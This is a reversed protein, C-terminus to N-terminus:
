NALIRQQFNEDFKMEMDQLLHLLRSKAEDYQKKDIKEFCDSVDTTLDSEVNYFRHLSEWMVYRNKLESLDSKAREIYAQGDKETTTDSKRLLNLGELAELLMDRVDLNMKEAMIKSINM